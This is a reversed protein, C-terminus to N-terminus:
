IRGNRFYHHLILNECSFFLAIFTQGLNVIDNRRMAVKILLVSGEPPAEATKYSKRCPM